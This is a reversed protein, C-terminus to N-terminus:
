YVKIFQIACLFKSANMNEFDFRSLIVFDTILNFINYM